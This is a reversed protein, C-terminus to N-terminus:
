LNMTFTEEDSDSLLANEINTYRNTAEDSGGTAILPADEADRKVPKYGQYLGGYGRTGDRKTVECFKSTKSCRTSSTL